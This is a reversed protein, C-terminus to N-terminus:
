RLGDQFSCMAVYGTNISTERDREFQTKGAVEFPRMSWWSPIGQIM